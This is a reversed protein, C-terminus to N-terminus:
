DTRLAQPAAPNLRYSSVPYPRSGRPRTQDSVTGFRTELEEVSDAPDAVLNRGFEIKRCPSARPQENQSCHSRPITTTECRNSVGHFFSEGCPRARAGWTASTWSSEDRGM